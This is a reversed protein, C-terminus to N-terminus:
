SVSDVRGKTPSTLVVRGKKTAPRYYAEVKHKEKGILAEGEIYFQDAGKDRRIQLVEVEIRGFGEVEFWIAPESLGDKLGALDSGDTIALSGQPQGLTVGGTGM